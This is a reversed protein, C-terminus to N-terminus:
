CAPPLITRSPLPQSPPPLAASPVRRGQQQGGQRVLFSQHNSVYVAPQDPPPLNHLGQIVVPYYLATTLRAWLTNVM